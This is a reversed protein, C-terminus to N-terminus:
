YIEKLEEYDSLKEIINEYMDGYTMRNFLTKEGLEMAQINKVLEENDWLVYEIPSIDGMSYTDQAVNSINYCDIEVNFKYKMINDLQEFYKGKFGSNYYASLIMFDPTVANFIEYAAIGFNDVHMKTIPMIGGPVGILFIDPKNEQELLKLYHNYTLIKNKESMTNKLLFQPFTQGGFLVAENRSAIWCVNYGDRKLRNYIDLQLEMKNTKEGIGAVAIVPTYLNYIQEDGDFSVEDEEVPIWVKTNSAECIERIKEKQTETLRRSVFIKKNNNAMFKICEYLYKDEIKHESEVVWLVDFQKIDCVDFPDEVILDCDVYDKGIELTRKGILGWGKMSFVSVIEFKELENKYKLLPFTEYDYPFVAVKYEKKNM